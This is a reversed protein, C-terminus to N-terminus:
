RLGRERNRQGASEASHRAQTEIAALAERRLRSEEDEVVFPDYSRRMAALFLSMCKDCDWWPGYPRDDM